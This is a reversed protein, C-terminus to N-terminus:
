SEDPSMLQRRIWIALDDLTDRAEPLINHFIPWVHPLDHREELTVDVNAEALRAALRRADDYLIETDGVTIWVPPAGDYKAWLPSVRPDTKSHGKLYQASTDAARSAALLVEVEANKQFSQGSYTLDTLPSFCFVGAPLPAKESILQGLLSLALAGGASDGGIVIQDPRVGSACLADWALRVDDFAAPFPAEPALRYRPLVARAHLRKCLQAAMAAHTRPSGFVFGGGHIYLLVADENLEPPVIELAEVRRQAHEIVYWQMQTGRPAHFIIRATREFRQRLQVPDSARAMLPKEVRRLWINLLRARLSM